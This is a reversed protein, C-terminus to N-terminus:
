KFVRRERRWSLELPGLDIGLWDYWGVPGWWVGFTWNSWSFRWEYM